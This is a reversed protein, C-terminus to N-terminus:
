AREIEILNVCYRDFITGREYPTYIVLCKPKRCVFTTGNSASSGACIHIPTEASRLWKVIKKGLLDTSTSLIHSPRSYACSNHADITEIIRATMM